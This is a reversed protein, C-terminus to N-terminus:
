AAEAQTAPIDALRVAMVRGGSFVDLAIAAEIAQEATAGHYLAGLAPGMGTGEAFYAGAPFHAGNHEFLQLRGDRHILIGCDGGHEDAREPVPREPEDGRVWALWTECFAASGCATGLGMPGVAVKIAEGPQRHNGCTSQTDAALVGDRYAITTM